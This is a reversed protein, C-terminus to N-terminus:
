YLKKREARHDSNILTGQFSDDHFLGDDEDVLVAHERVEGATMEFQDRLFERLQRSECRRIRAFEVGLLVERRM